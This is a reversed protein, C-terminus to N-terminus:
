LLWYHDVLFSVFAQWNTHRGEKSSLPKHTMKLTTATAQKSNQSQPQRRRTLIWRPSNRKTSYGFGNHRAWTHRSSLPSNRIHTSFLWTTPTFRGRCLLSVLAETHPESPQGQAYSHFRQMYKLIPPPPKRVIGRSCRRIASAQPGYLPLTIYHPTHWLRLFGVTHPVTSCMCGRARWKWLSCPEWIFCWSM